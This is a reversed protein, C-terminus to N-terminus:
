WASSRRIQRPGPRSRSTGPTAQTTVRFGADTRFTQETVKCPKAKAVARGKSAPKRAKAKRVAKITEERNLGDAVVRANM